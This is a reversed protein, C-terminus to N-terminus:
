VMFLVASITLDEADGTGGAVTCNIEIDDGPDIIYYSQNIAIPPNDVWSTGIEIGNDTDNSSIANGNVTMNIKPQTTTDDTVHIGRLTLLRATALGWKFYTNMDAALLDGTGDGYTGDVYFDMQVMREADAVYLAELDEGTDLAAGIVDIHVNASIAGIMGYHPTSLYEYIVPMGVALGTTNSMLIRSTSDPTATYIAESIKTRRGVQDILQDTQLEHAM